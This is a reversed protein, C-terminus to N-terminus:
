ILNDTQNNDILVAGDELYRTLVVWRKFSYDLAKVTASDKSV